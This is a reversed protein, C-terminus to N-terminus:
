RGRVVKQILTGVSSIDIEIRDDPQLTFESAPVIGTGTMVYAGVPFDLERYLYSVLDQFTRNIASLRTTGSFATEDNRFIQLSIETEPSLAEETILIGPGIGASQQYTKAQPLYLPNEGEISRSSMDNGVTYGLIKGSPSVVLTLEPEPVDWSSDQRIRVAQQHGAAREATSKFFIEPREAHYVHSYFDAGGASESEERRAMQSNYYTVGCAWIEQTGIPPLLHNTVAERAAESSSDSLQALWAHIDDNSILSDWEADVFVFSGERQCVIGKATKFLHM